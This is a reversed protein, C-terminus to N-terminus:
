IEFDIMRKMIAFDSWKLKNYKPNLIKILCQELDDTKGECYLPLIYIEAFEVEQYFYRTNLSKGKMHDIVRNLVKKGRGIYLLVGDKNYLRYIGNTLVKIGSRKRLAIIGDEIDKRRILFIRSYTDIKIM